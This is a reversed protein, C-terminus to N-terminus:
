IIDVCPKEVTNYSVPETISTSLGLMNTNLCTYMIYMDEGLKSSVLLVSSVICTITSISEYYHKIINVSSWVVNLIYIFTNFCVIYTHRQNIKTLKQKLEPLVSLANKLNDDPVSKVVDFKNILFFQRHTESGYLIIFTLLSVFNLAVIDYRDETRSQPVFYAFMCAMLIRMSTTTVVVIHHIKEKSNESIM